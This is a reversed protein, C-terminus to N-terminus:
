FSVFYLGDKVVASVVASTVAIRGAREVASEVEIIHKIDETCKPEEQFVETFQQGKKLARRKRALFNYHARNKKQWEIIKAVRKEKNKAYDELYSQHKSKKQVGEPLKPM